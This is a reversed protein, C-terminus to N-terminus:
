PKKSAEIVAKLIRQYTGCRCLHGKMRELTEELTPNRKELLLAYAELIQGPQCYGCQPVQYKIWARKLPHDKPIGEITLIEKNQSEKITLSCSRVAKGNLLVTCTGCAGIGCGFKVSTINLRERLVWLLPEEEFASVEYWRGNVKIRFM